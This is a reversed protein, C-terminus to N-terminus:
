KKGYTEKYLKATKRAFNYDYCIAVLFWTGTMDPKAEVIYGNFDDIEKKIRTIM